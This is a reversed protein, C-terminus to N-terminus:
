YRTKHLNKRINSHVLSTKMLNFVAFYYSTNTKRIFGQLKADIITNTLVHHIITASHKTVSILRNVLPFVGNQFVLNLFDYVNTNTNIQM